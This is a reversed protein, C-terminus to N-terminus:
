FAQRIRRRAGFLRGRIAEKPRVSFVYYGQVALRSRLEEQSAAEEIRSLIRGGTTAVKCVYEM